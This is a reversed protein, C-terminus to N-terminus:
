HLCLKLQEILPTSKKAYGVATPLVRQITTSIIHETTAEFNSASLRSEFDEFSQLDCLSPLRDMIAIELKNIADQIFEPVCKLCAAHAANVAATDVIFDVLRQLHPRQDLFMHRLKLKLQDKDTDVTNKMITPELMSNSM